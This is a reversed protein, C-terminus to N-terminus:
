LRRKRDDGTAFIRDPGASVLFFNQQDDEEMRLPNGWSDLLSTASSLYQPVLLDLNEPYENHDNWYASVASAVTNMDIELTASKARDLATVSRSVSDAERGKGTYLILVVILAILLILLGFRM